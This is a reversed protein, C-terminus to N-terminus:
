RKLLYIIYVIIYVTKYVVYLNVDCQENWTAKCEASACKVM